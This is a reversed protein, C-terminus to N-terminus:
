DETHVIPQMQSRIMYQEFVSLINYITWYLTLGAPFSMFMFFFIGPMLYVMMKQRPDKITMRQQFFMAVTM